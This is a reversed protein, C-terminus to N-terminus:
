IWEASSIYLDAHSGKGVLAHQQANGTANGGVLAGFQQPPQLLGTGLHAHRHGRRGSSEDSRQGKLGQGPMGHMEIQEIRGGFRRHTVDFERTPRVNNQDGRRARIEKGTQDM